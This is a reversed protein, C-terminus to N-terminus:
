ATPGLYVEALVASHWVTAAPGAARCTGRDLLILDDSVERVLAMNHEVLLITQGDARLRRLLDALTELLKPNVGSAPEDLLLLQPATALLRAIALLKQQGYSFSGAVAEARDALGVRDLQQLAQQHARAAERRCRRPTALAAWVGHGTQGPVGVLVNELATLSGFVRVDQFLRGIGAAAVRHAGRPLPRGHWRLQGADPQHAGAILGVVTSKGAGNPGILGTLRGATLALCLDDAAVTGGFRKTVGILELLPESM